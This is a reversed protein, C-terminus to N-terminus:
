VAEKLQKYPEFKVRKQAPIILKEGSSPNRGEREQYQKASFKGFKSLQVEEGNVLETKILALFTEIVAKATKTKLGTILAVKNILDQKNM